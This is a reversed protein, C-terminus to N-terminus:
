TFVGDLQKPKRQVLLLGPLETILPNAQLAAPRLSELDSVASKDGGALREEIQELRQLYHPGKPYRDPFTETLDSVAARLKQCDAQVDQAVGHSTALCALSLCISVIWMLISPTRM